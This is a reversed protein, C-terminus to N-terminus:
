NNVNVKSIVNTESSFYLWVIILLVIVILIVWYYSIAASSFGGKLTHKVDTAVQSAIRLPLVITGAINDVIAGRVSGATQTVASINKQAALVANDVAEIYMNGISKINNPNKRMSEYMDQAIVKVASGVNDTLKGGRSVIQRELDLVIDAATSPIKTVSSIYIKLASSINNASETDSVAVSAVANAAASVAQSVSVAVVQAM